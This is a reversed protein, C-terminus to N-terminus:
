FTCSVCKPWCSLNNVYGCSVCQWLGFPLEKLLSVNGSNSTKKNRNSEFFRFTDDRMAYIEEDTSLIDQSNDFNNHVYMLERVRSTNSLQIPGHHMVTLSQYRERQVQKCEIFTDNTINTFNTFKEQKIAM